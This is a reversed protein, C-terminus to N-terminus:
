SPQCRSKSLITGAHQQLHEKVLALSPAEGLIKKMSTVGRDRIGCPIIHRYHTLNPDVNLAFGHQSIGRSFHLGIAAIKESGVWIGPYATDRQGVIGFDALVRLCLEEIASVFDGVAMGFGAIQYIAYGVVQGPGHYTIRGGRNSKIVDIGDAAIVEPPSIFDEHCDRHGLTVVPPHEVLLLTDGEKGQFRQERLKEQLEWAQRYDMLGLDVCRLPSTIMPSNM